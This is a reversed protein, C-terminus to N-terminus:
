ESGFKSKCGPCTEPTRDAIRSSCSSCVLINSRRWGTIVLAIGALLGWPFLFFMAVFGIIELGLGLSNKQRRRVITAVPALKGPLRFLQRCQPCNADAGVDAKPYSLQYGCYRCRCTLTESSM